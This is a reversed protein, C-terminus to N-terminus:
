RRLVVMRNSASKGAVDLRSHYVGSAVPRGLDDRGDWSQDYLGPPQQGHLVTKVLRGNLDFVRLRVEQFAPGEPVRYRIVTSSRFPNPYNRLLLTGAGPGPEPAAVQELIESGWVANNRQNRKFMPWVALSQNFTWPTDWCYIKQDFSEAMVEVLGDGDIDWVAPSNEVLNGTQIPFGPLLAGQGTYGHVRGIQDGFVLDLDGDGDVDALVPASRVQVKVGENDRIDLPFGPLVAGNTGNFAFVAGNSAGIVVDPNGDGTLDGLAPSSDVDATLQIGVPYNTVQTLDARLAHLLANSSGVVIEMVGDGDIDGVAPSSTIDGGTNYPFGPYTTGDHNVVYIRWDRMGAIVEPYIEDDINAVTPTGYSFNTGTARLVGLTAPNNDGDLYETGDHHFAFLFRAVTFVLELDGDLDLDALCVSGLPNPETIDELNVDIPFGPMATGLHDVLHVRSDLYSIGAIELDGDNDVDGVAPTNWFVSQGTLSIPGLTRVDEDGNHYDSGDPNVAYIEEGMGLIQLVGPNGDLDAFTIGSTSASQVEIPFGEHLPLTTTADAEVSRPGENGSSDIAAVEYFFRTLAPLGEDVYYASGETTWTNIRTYPGGTTASRYINYGKVDSDSVPDFELAVYDDGGFAVLGGPTGPGTWDVLRTYVEGYADVLVVRLEHYSGVDSLSLRFGDGPAAIAGNALDGLVITSDVITVAPDTSRLRAELSKADGLGINRIVPVIAFDEGASITGNGDGNGVTDKVAQQRYEFVPARVYLIIEQVYSDALGNVTLTCRAERRDPASRSIAIVMPDNPAMTAGAGIDNYASFNDTVNLYPDASSLTASVFTEGAGGNNKLTVRLEVTEGADSLGDGNGASSGSGDDTIGQSLAYLYPSGGPSTVTANGLYPIANHRTVGVTFTGTEDPRFDLTANGALDTLGTAYADGDKFLTVRASDVGANVTFTGGGLPFAPDHSVSLAAPEDTRYDLSPDGLYIHSFQTWRHSNNQTAFAVFLAKSLAFAEGLRTVGQLHVLDYFENQYSRGTSPFDLRTSGIVGIAGGNPNLLFREAICNYDIAASTCNIAYLLFTRAGNVFADADANILTQHGIGVSMTNIYGHGVHHVLHFGANISDVVADKNEAVSGPWGTYNEYMRVFDEGVVYNNTVDQCWVAGDVDLDEGSVWNQPFLVEGLFLHRNQYGGPPNQVYDVLKDVLIQAETPNNATLRGVWVDPLLDAADGENGPGGYGEGFHADGDANWNGDLDSYYLDTPIEEGGFFTTLGYRVPIVDTDGALLVYATGWKQVADRIFNRITEQTDVGLPYNAKIWTVTRVVTALGLETKFDAYDQWVSEQAGNTIIVMEVASGDVTPRFTPEFPAGSNIAPRLGRSRSGVEEARGGTLAGLTRTFSEWGGASERRIRLDERGGARERTTVEIRFRTLLGLEGTAPVWALPSVVVTGVSRGRMRGTRVGVVPDEPYAGTRALIGPDLEGSGTGEREPVGVAALVPAGPLSARGTAVVRAEVIEHGDPLLFSFPVLPLDPSGAPLGSAGGPLDLTVVGGASARAVQSPDLEVDRTLVDAFGAVPAALFGAILVTRGVPSFLRILM